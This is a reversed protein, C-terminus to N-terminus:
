VNRLGKDHRLSIHWSYASSPHIYPKTFLDGNFEQSVKVMESNLVIENGLKTTVVYHHNPEEYFVVEEIGEEMIRRIIPNNKLWNDNVIISM